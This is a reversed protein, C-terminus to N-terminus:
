YDGRGGRRGEGKSAHTSVFQEFDGLESVGCDWSERFGCSCEIVQGEGEGTAGGAILVHDDDRSSREGGEKSGSGRMEM